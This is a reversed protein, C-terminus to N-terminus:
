SAGEHHPQSTTTRLAKRTLHGRLAAQIKVVARLLLPDSMDVGEADEQYRERGGATSPCWSKCSPKKLIKRAKYGRFGAQIKTAARHKNRYRPLNNVQRRTQYGRFVSQIRTAARNWEEADVPVTLESGKQSCLNTDLTSISSNDRDGDEAVGLKSTEEDIEPFTNTNMDVCTIIIEPEVFIKRSENEKSKNYKIESNKIENQAIHKQKRRVSHGRYVSQIKRAAEELCLTNEESDDYGNTDQTTQSKKIAVEENPITMRVGPKQVTATESHPSNRARYGRFVAQIITAARVDEASVRM